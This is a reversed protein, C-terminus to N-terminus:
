SRAGSAPHAFASIGGEHDGVAITTGDPSWAISTVEAGVRARLIPRRAGRLAYVALGGDDTGAALLADRPGFALATVRDSGPDLQIPARGEPGRGSCDWVTVESGGGTALYKGSSDWSLEIVKTEFGSMILDIGREVIWFHVTADQDGTAIHAGDPSWAVRLVSGAWSLRQTEGQAPTWLHLGGYAASALQTADPRWAIDTVTSVHEASENTARGAADVLLVRRGAAVALRGGDAGWVIREVWAGTDV